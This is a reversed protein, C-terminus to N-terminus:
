SIKYVASLIYKSAEPVTVKDHATNVTEVCVFNLYSKKDLDAMKTVSTSWPNWVVVTSSGMSTISITRDFGADTLLVETPANKYVRDTEETLTVDGSQTKSDFGELKDLYTKNDLGKITVNAANSINFYTHLAQTIEFSKNGTNHTTLSIELEKGVIVDLQLEFKYPWIAQSGKIHTAGLGIRIDSDSIGLSILTRGDTLQKSALVKWQQNRVFGHFPRSFESTDAGFCPWCIPAGGRITKDQQYVADDSLFLIDEAETHPKFSLVQGAYTSIRASAYDNSIDIMVFGETDQTFM